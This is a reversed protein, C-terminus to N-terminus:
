VVMIELSPDHGLLFASWAVSVIMSKLSRPPVNIMLRKNQGSKIRLLQYAIAEIHWNDRFTQGPNLTCFVKEVFAHFSQRLLAEVESNTPHDM